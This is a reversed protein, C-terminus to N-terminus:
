LSPSSQSEGMLRAAFAAPVAYGLSSHPREENYDRRYEALKVRADALNYFAEVDFCEARLRSNFSEIFGNQWPSGPKIFHNGTGATALFM